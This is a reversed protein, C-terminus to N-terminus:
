CRPLRLLNDKPTDNPESRVYKEGKSSTAPKLSPYPSINVKISGPHRKLHDHIASKNYFGPVKCGQLYIQSIEQCSQSNGCGNKMRIKTAYVM